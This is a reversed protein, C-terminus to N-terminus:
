DKRLGDLPAGMKEDFKEDSWRKFNKLYYIIIFFPAIALVVIGSVVSIYNIWFFPLNPLWWDNNGESILENVVSFNILSAIAFDLTAELIVRLFSNWYLAESLKKHWKKFKESLLTLPKTVFLFVAELLFFVVVLFLSGLNMIM